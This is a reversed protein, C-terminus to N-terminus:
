WKTVETAKVLVLDSVLQDRVVRAEVMAASAPLPPSQREAAAASPADAGDAERRSSDMDAPSEPDEALEDRARSRATAYEGVFSESSSDRSRIGDVRVAGPTCTRGDDPSPRPPRAAKAKRGTRESVPERGTGRTNGKTGAMMV